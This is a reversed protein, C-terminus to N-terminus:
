NRAMAVRGSRALEKIGFSKLMEIMALIKTESGTAEITLSKPNIDVVKARFINAIQMIEARTQSTTNVKLLALEREVYEKERFDVVKLVDILKNLQKSIQEIIKDDGSTVITMASCDPDQTEAVCLSNINYGRGSFLGAIRALVGFQNRVILSITHKM